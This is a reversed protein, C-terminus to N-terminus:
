SQNAIPPVALLTVGWRKGAPKDSGNDVVVRSLGNSFQRAATRTKFYIQM